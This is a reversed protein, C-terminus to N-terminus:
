DCHRSGGAIRNGAMNEVGGCTTRAGVDVDLEETGCDWVYDEAALCVIIPADCVPLVCLPWIALDAREYLRFSSYGLRDLEYYFFISGFLVCWLTLAMCM